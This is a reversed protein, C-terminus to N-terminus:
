VCTNTSFVSEPCFAEDAPFLYNRNSPETESVVKLNVIRPPRIAVWIDTKTWCHNGDQKCFQSFLLMQDIAVYFLHSVTVLKPSLVEEGEYVRSLQVM